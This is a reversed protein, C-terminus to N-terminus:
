AFADPPKVSAKRVGDHLLLEITDNPQLAQASTVFRGNKKILAYGRELTKHYDLLNLQQISAVCRQIQQRYTTEVSRMMSAEFRDLNEYCQQMKLIPRNFAYSNCLSHLEREAGEIKNNLIQQTYAVMQEVDRLVQASDPVVLEAAISPTGARVDAVMDAITIDTEHGVASIVPIASRYIAHAVIEENFPQLDELSGGGRAVIIVQPKWQKKKTHNFFDLAQAIEEAAGAGQVKVPYLAIRAAPFRRALVKSMDEIVAGTPSTIIGITTPITPLTKKRNEDFYGLAALKQVLEAFAQQLAGVGAQTVHRCILQYRGSPPYLELRGEAVVEMGDKPRISLLSATSKWIVAPLQAGSDKLTLYIHGSSHQKCNSIEGRVRVFPFLSELESKIHATLETVSLADMANIAEMAGEKGLFPL